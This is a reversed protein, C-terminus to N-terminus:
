EVAAAVVTVTLTAKVASGLRVVATHDGLTKIPEALEIMKRDIEIGQQALAESIQTTTVSGYLRDGEGVRQAITITVGELREAMGMAQEKEKQQLQELRVRQKEFQSINAATAELAKGQPILFNRGYGRRVEVIAGLTGLAPIDETLIVKM